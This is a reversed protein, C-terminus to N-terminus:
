NDDRPTLNARSREQEAQCNRADCVKEGDTLKKPCLSERTPDDKNAERQGDQPPNWENHHGWARIVVDV